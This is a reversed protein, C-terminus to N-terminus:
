PRVLSCIQLKKKKQLAHEVALLSKLLSLRSKFRQFFLLQLKKKNKKAIAHWKNQKPSVSFQSLTLQSSFNEGHSTPSPSPPPQCAKFTLSSFVVPLWTLPFIFGNPAVDTCKLPCHWGHRWHLTAFCCHSRLHHIITGFMPPVVCLAGKVNCLDKFFHIATTVKGRVLWVNPLM